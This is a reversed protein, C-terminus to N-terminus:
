VLFWSIESKCPFLILCLVMEKGNFKGSGKDISFIVHCIRNKQALM